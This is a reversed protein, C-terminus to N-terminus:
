LYKHDQYWRATLALGAKLDVRPAYGLEEKARAISFARNQRFWDVRRRFLPPELRFPACATECAVAALWLPRFPLKVIQVQVGLAEGTMRVLDEIHVYHEDAAIYV